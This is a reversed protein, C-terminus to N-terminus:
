DEPYGRRGRQAKISMNKAWIPCSPCYQRICNELVLKRTQSKVGTWNISIRLQIQSAKTERIKRRSRCNQNGTKIEWWFKSERWISSKKRKFDQFIKRVFYLLASNVFNEMALLKAICFCNPDVMQWKNWSFQSWILILMCGLHFVIPAAVLYWLKRM